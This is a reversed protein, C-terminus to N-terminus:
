PSPKHAVVLSPQYVPKGFNDPKGRPATFLLREVGRLTLVADLERVYNKRGEIHDAVVRRLFAPNWFRSEAIQADTMAERLFDALERGFWTRYHLFKHHGFIRLRANVRGLMADIPTLWSVMGENYLYDLKFISEFFLRRLNKPFSAEKDEIRRDTPIQSLAPHNNKILKLAPQASTRLTEPARYAAAVLENDLFPTRLTLQSRSAAMSGFLNWPVNRFAASSVPHTNAEIQSTATAVRAAFDPNLASSALGLANFTSVGRLIESGFLGTIRVPALERAEENFYVEHAGTVGFYGDTLYITRDAHSAFRSFFDPLLRILRYKLSCTKAVRAAIRDDLTMQRPGTFTYAILDKSSKARCALIMRTDLGGTLSIGVASRTEFYRPLVRNFIEEFQREFDTESQTMQNEWVEKHFYQKRTAAGNEFEILSAGPLLQVGRFLTKENFTCGAALFQAVGDEDFQRLEPLVRLLAKAESAFYFAEPSEHWYLREMGYRDNFLFAKEADSISLCVRQVIRKTARFLARRTRPLSPYALEGEDARRTDEGPSACCRTESDLFCEGSFILAVDHQRSLFVQDSAFSNEHAVWGCYIGMEPVTTPEPFTFRSM